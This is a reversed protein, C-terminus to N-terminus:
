HVGRMIVVSAIDALTGAVSGAPDAAISTACRTL